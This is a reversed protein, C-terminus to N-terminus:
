FQHKAHSIVWKLKGSTTREIKEPYEVKFRVDNGLRDQFGKLLLAEDAQTYHEGKVIRICINELDEQIIQSEEINVMPKFPHTLVSPSIWRGDPLQIIAEEKTAVDDMLPFARGCSCDELKLACSDNTQYRILPFAFNHLSTAVIKGFEGAALPENDISLFETIGYDENLHHGSHEECETAYVTREAMGYFDFVRCSFREEILKRQWNYLTESSTLVATMPLSQDTISLFSALTYITSPYGEIFKIEDKKLKDIFFQIFEKKLHFSSLFLQNNIYNKRWFPPHDQSPPCIVRGQLSAYAERRQMGAWAKQRHDAVHHVVCTNIDYLVTLPAGTTGSTNGKRLRKSNARTSILSNFNSKIDKKTLAPIKFLDEKSKIDQPKLKAKKFREKYFPVSEFAHDILRILRENQYSDLESKRMFQNADFQESMREFKAGYREFYLGLAKGNLMATQFPIPSKHYIKELFDM